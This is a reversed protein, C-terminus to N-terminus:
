GLLVRFSAGPAPAPPPTGMPDSAEVVLPAAAAYLNPYPVGDLSAFASGIFTTAGVAFRPRGDVEYGDLTVVYGAGDLAVAFAPLQAVPFSSARRTTAIPAPLQVSGTFGRVEQWAAPTTVLSGVLHPETTFGRLLPPVDGSFAYPYWATEGLSRSSVAETQLLATVPAGSATFPVYGDGKHQWLEFSQRGDVGVPGSAVLSLLRPRTIAVFWPAVPHRGVHTVGYLAARLLADNM